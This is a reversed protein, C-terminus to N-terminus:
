TASASRRTAASQIFKALFIGAILAATFAFVEWRGTGLAPLAGGPCFGAIGWGIGFVASGGVLRADIASSTPLSFKEELLPAARGFVLKYGIFTTILAGGMVFILSPDWSGAIDFFNLVKAPNAMGSLAIGVGFILSILYTAILKM